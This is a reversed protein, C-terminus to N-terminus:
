RRLLVHGLRAARLGVAAHALLHVHVVRDHLSHPRDQVEQPSPLGHSVHTAASLLLDRRGAPDSGALPFHASM